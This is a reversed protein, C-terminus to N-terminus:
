NVVVKAQMSPHPTCHYDFSGKETFTYTTTGGAPLNQDVNLVPITVTHRVSDKNVWKVTDGVKVELNTPAFKFNEVLVQLTEGSTTGEKAMTPEAPQAPAETTTEKVTQEAAPAQPTNNCGIILLLSILLIGIGIIRKM